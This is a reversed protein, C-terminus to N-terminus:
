ADALADEDDPGGLLVLLEGLTMPVLLLGAGLTIVAQLPGLVTAWSSATSVFLSLAILPLILSAWFLGALGTASRAQYLWLLPISLAAVLGPLLALAAGIRDGMFPSGLVADVLVTLASHDGIGVAPLLMYAYAVLLVGAVLLVKAGVSEPELSWWALATPLVSVCLGVVIRAAVSAGFIADLAPHMEFGGEQVEGGVLLSAFVLLGLGLFTSLAARVLPDLPGFVMAALLVGFAGVTFPTSGPVMLSSWPSVLGDPGLTPMVISATLLALVILMVRPVLEPLAHRPALGPASLGLSDPGNPNTHFTVRPPSAITGIHTLGPATVQATGMPGKRLPEAVPSLDLEQQGDSSKTGVRWSSAPGPLRALLADTSPRELPTRPSHFRQVPSSAIVSSASDKRSPGSVPITCLVEPQAVPTGDLRELPTPHLAELEGYAMTTPRDREPRDEKEPRALGVIGENAAAMAQRAIATMRAGDLTPTREGRVNLPRLAELPLPPRAGDGVPMLGDRSQAESVLQGVQDVLTDHDLRQSAGYPDSSHM